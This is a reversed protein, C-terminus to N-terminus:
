NHTGALPVAHGGVPYGSPYALPTAYGDPPFCAVLVGVVQGQPDLVPSGSDGPVCSPLRMQLTVPVIANPFNAESGAYFQRVIGRYWARQFRAHDGHARWVGHPNGLIALPEGWRLQRYNGLPISAPIAPCTGLQQCALGQTFVAPPMYFSEAVDADPYLWTDWPVFAGGVGAQQGDAVLASDRWLYWQGQNYWGPLHSATVLRIPGTPLQMAFATGYWTPPFSWLDLFSGGEQIAAVAPLDRQVVSAWPSYALASSSALLCVAALAPLLLRKM